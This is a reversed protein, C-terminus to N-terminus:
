VAVALGAAALAMSLGQAVQQGTGPDTETTVDPRLFQAFRPDIMDGQQMSINAFLNRLGDVLLAEEEGVDTLATSVATPSLGAQAGAARTAGKATGLARQTGTAAATEGFLPGLGKLVDQHGQYQAPLFTKLFLSLEDTMLRKAEPTLQIDQKTTPGKAM